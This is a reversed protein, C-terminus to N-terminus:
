VTGGGLFLLIRHVILTGVVSFSVVFRSRELLGLGVVDSSPRTTAFSSSVVSVFFRVVVFRMDRHSRDIGNLVLETPPLVLPM